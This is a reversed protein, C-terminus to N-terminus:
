KKKKRLEKALRWQLAALEEQGAKDLANGFLEHATAHTPKLSTAKDFDTIAGEINENELRLKGRNYYAKFSAPAIELAKHFCNEAEFTDGMNFLTVGKRVWADVYEPYMKLAKDYNALAARNDHALTICDNGMQLYEHAYTKLVELQEHM